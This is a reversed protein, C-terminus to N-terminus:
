TSSNLIHWNSEKNQMNLIHLVECPCKDDQRWGYERSNLVESSKGHWDSNSITESRVITVAIYKINKPNHNLKQTNCSVKDLCQLVHIISDKFFFFFPSGQSTTFYHKGWSKIEGRFTYLWVNQVLPSYERPVREASITCSFILTCWKFVCVCM